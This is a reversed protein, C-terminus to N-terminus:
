AAWRWVDHSGDENTIVCSVARCTNWWEFVREAYADTATVALDSRLAVTALDDDSTNTIVECEDPQDAVQVSVTLM